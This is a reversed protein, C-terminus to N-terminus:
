NFEQIFLFDIGCNKAFLQDSETDGIYICKLHSPIQLSDFSATAPKPQTANAYIIDIHKRLGGWDLQDVKNAQQIVNGNTIIFVKCHGLAKILLEHSLPFLPLKEGLQVTRMWDLMQEINVSEIKFEEILKDFLQDRGFADFTKILFNALAKEDQNKELESINKAIAKYAAHLYSKEAYLTNDLDFLVVDYQQFLTSDAM